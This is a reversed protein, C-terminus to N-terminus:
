LDWSIIAFYGHFCHFYIFFSFFFLSLSLSFSFSVVWSHLVFLLIGIGEFLEVLWGALTHIIELQDSEWM